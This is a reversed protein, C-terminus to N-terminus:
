LHGSDKSRQSTDKLKKQALRSKRAKLRDLAASVSIKPAPNVPTHIMIKDSM